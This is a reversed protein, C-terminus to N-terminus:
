IAYQWGLTLQWDTELQPGALKQWFPIGLELALRHHDGPILFNLGLNMDVRKVAQRDPDATQVPAMIVPDIGNINKREFYELRGSISVRSSIRYSAWGALHHEDGFSYDEDNKGLRFVSRWQGGWGWRDAIDNYTLGTILDYTGSGLQMPYPLRPSPETNMPTLIQGSKTIDGTPLSVGATLHWRSKLNDDVKILAAITTDGFGKTQTSFTRLVDTGAAGMYTTHDMKKTIHSGMGMLTIRNSPAYMFGFMHMDMSMKTPVVRLFPPQMPAGAFRNPASTAIEDASIGSVGDRNGQMSMQMFRYSFMLEGQKHYHDGMVGIPAHSDPGTDAQVNTCACIIAACAAILILKM